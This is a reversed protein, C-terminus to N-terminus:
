GCRTEARRGARTPWGSATRLFRWIAWRGTDFSSATVLPREWGTGADRLYIERGRVFAYQGNAPSWRTEVERSRRASVEGGSAVTVGEYELRVSSFALRQGDSSVAPFQESGTGATLPRAKGDTETLWLHGGRSVVFGDGAWAFRPAPPGGGQELARKPDGGGAPV